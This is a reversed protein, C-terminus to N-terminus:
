YAFTTLHAACFVKILSEFYACDGSYSGYCDLGNVSANNLTENSMWFSAIGIFSKDYSMLLTVYLYVNGSGFDANDFDESVMLIHAIKRNEDVEHWNSFDQNITFNEVAWEDQIMPRVYDLVEPILAQFDTQSNDAAWGIYFLDVNPNDDYNVQFYENKNDYYFEEGEPVAVIVGYNADEMIDFRLNEYDLKVNFSEIYNTISYLSEPDDSTESMEDISRNKTLWFEFDPSSVPTYEEYTLAVYEDSFDEGTGERSQDDGETSVEANENSNERPQNDQVNAIPLEVEASYHQAIEAFDPPLTSVSSSELQNLFKAPIIWSVNTQGEELGGDGIGVLRGQADYAPSGSYGPQLSGNCYIIELQVSPMQGRILADLDKKPIFTELTEKKTYGKKMDQTSAAPAGRNYGLAYIPSHEQIIQGNYTTFPVVGAPVASQGPKVKLLVLDAEKLVKKIEVERPFEQLYKVWIKGGPRMAHLSTVIQDNTKWVFGTCVHANKDGAVTVEVRVISKEIEASSVQAVASLSIILLLAFLAIIRNM